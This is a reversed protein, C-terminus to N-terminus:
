FFDQLGRLVTQNSHNCSSCTFEVQKELKPLNNVFLMIKELQDTSLGELFVNISKKSEDKFSIIEEPTKLKDLCLFIMQFVAETLSEQDESMMDLMVGDFHPYKMVLTYQDTLKINKTKRDVKIDIEELNIQTETYEDCQSCKLNIKTTEGASKSRIQTFIYELDFTALSNVNIKDLICTSITDVIAKLIQKEDQSELALLLVKQEKVLFPRYTVTKGTSPITLEYKPIDNIQPLAM